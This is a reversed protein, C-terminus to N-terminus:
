VRSRSITDEIFRTKADAYENMDKWDAASLERKLAAYQDRANPNARLFDRFIL